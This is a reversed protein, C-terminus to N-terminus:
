MRIQWNSSLTPSAGAMDIQDTMIPRENVLVNFIGKVWTQGTKNRWRAFGFERSAEHYILIAGDCKFRRVFEDLIKEDSLETISQTVKRMLLIKSALISQLDILKAPSFV